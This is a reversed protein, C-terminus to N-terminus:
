RMFSDIAGNMKEVSATDGEAVAEVICHSLHEKLLAKGAGTLEARVAALQVLVDACDEGNEIMSRVKTLHGISRSLRNVIKKMEAPDHTHGHGGSHAADGHPHSHVTGDAHTHTTGAGHADARSWAHANGDTHTHEAKM